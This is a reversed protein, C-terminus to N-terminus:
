NICPADHQRCTSENKREQAAPHTVWTPFASRYIFLKTVLAAVYIPVIVGM